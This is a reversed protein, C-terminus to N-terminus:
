RQQHREKRFISQHSSHLRLFKSVQRAISKTSYESLIWSSYKRSLLNVLSLPEALNVLDLIVRKGSKTKAKHAEESLKTPMQTVYLPDGKKILRTRPDGEYVALLFLHDEQVTVRPPHRHLNQPKWKRHLNIGNSPISDAYEQIKEKLQPVESVVCGIERVEQRRNV